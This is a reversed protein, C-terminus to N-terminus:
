GGIGAGYAELYYVLIGEGAWHGAVREVTSRLAAVIGLAPNPIRDGKATLLEERSGIFWDGEPTLIARGNTGDVKETLFVNGHFETREETLLGKAGLAHYTVISPYKTASNLKRLFMSVTM